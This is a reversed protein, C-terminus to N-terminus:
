TSSTHCFVMLWTVATDSADFQLGMGLIKSVIFDEPVKWTVCFLVTSVVFLCVFWKRNSM